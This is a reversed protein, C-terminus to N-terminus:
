HRCLPRKQHNSACVPLLYVAEEGTLHVPLCPSFLIFCVFLRSLVAGYRMTSYKELCM